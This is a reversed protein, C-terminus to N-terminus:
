AKKINTFGRATFSNEHPQYIAQAEIRAAKPGAKRHLVGCLTSGMVCRFGSDQAEIVNVVSYISPMTIALDSLM